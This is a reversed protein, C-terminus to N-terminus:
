TIDPVNEVDLCHVIDVGDAHAVSQPGGCSHVTPNGHRAELLIVSLLAPLQRPEEDPSLM